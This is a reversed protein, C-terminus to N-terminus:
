KFEFKTKFLCIFKYVDSDPPFHLDLEEHLKDLEERHNALVYFCYNLATSTTEFGALLFGVLNFKIEKSFLIIATFLISYFMDFNAMLVDFSMEKDLRFQALDVKEKRKLEEHDEIKSDLLLQTFDKRNVKLIFM